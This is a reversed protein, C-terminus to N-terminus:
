RNIPLYICDIQCFVCLHISGSQHYNLTRQEVNTKRFQCAFKNTLSTLSKRMRYISNIYQTRDHKDSNRERSCLSRFSCFHDTQFLPRDSFVQVIGLSNPFELAHYQPFILKEGPAKGLTSAAHSWKGNAMISISHM